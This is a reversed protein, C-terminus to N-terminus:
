GAKTAVAAPRGLEFTNPAPSILEVSRSYREVAIKKMLLKKLEYITAIASFKQEDCDTDV